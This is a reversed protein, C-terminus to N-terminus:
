PGVNHRPRPCSTAKPMERRPRLAEAVLLLGGTGLVSTASYSLQRVNAAQHSPKSTVPDKGGCSFTAMPQPPRGGPPPPGPLLCVQGPANSSPSRRPRPALVSVWLELSGKHFSARSTQSM